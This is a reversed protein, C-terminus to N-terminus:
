FRRRLWVIVGAAFVLAPLVYLLIVTVAATQSQTIALRDASIQKARIDLTQASGTMYSAANLLFDGNAYADTGLLGETEAAALSGMVFMRSVRGTGAPREAMVAINLPGDIDGDTKELSTNSLDTKGWSSESTVLLKTHVAGFTNNEKASVSRSIPSVFSLGRSILKETIESECMEPAPVFGGSQSRLLRSQDEEIVYDNNITIGWDDLYDAFLPPVEKGAESLVMLQGGNDMYGDIIELESSTFDGTPDAIVVLAANQPLEEKLLNVDECEFIDASFAEKLYPCEYENHGQTFYVTRAGGSDTLNIVASTVKKEMDISTANTYTDRRYLEDFSIVKFREGCALIVSGPEVESGDAEFKSVFSPDINPDVFSVHFKDSLRGYEDLYERVYKVYEGSDDDTFLAYVYIDSELGSMVEKTQESFEYVRERTFDFKLPLKESLLSAIINILLVCIIVAATTVASNIKMNNKTKNKTNSKMDKKM